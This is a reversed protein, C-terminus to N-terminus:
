FPFSRLALRSAACAYAAVLTAAAVYIKPRTPVFGFLSASPPDNKLLLYAHIERRSVLRGLMRRTARNLDAIPALPALVHYYTLAAHLTDDAIGRPDSARPPGYLGFANCVDRAGIAFYVLGSLALYLRWRAFEGDIQRKATAHTADDEVVHVAGRELAGCRLTLCAVPGLRPLFAALDAFAYSIPRWLLPASTGRRSAHRDVNRLTASVHAGVFLVFGALFLRTPPPPPPPVRRTHHYVERADDDDEPPPPLVGRRADVLAVGYAALALLAYAVKRACPEAAGGSAFSYFGAYAAGYGVTAALVALGYVVRYCRWFRRPEEFSLGLVRLLLRQAREASGDDFDSPPEEGDESFASFGSRASLGTASAESRPLLPEPVLAM